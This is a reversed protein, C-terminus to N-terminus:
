KSCFETIKKCTYNIEEDRLEPFMPLSVIEDAYKESVPFSGKKLGLDSYAPHLHVPVPYHIITQIGNQKLFNMLESRRKHRIVYLHYVSECGEAEEAKEIGKLLENYLKANKRRMSNWKDLHKLKVDLVAAQVSDLRSNYGKCLHVYKEKQGYNRLMRLKEALLDDNTIIAGADGYAGLNKGPYFSFAAAEGFIGAKKGKYRAGHAQCADEFIILSHKKAIESIEDMQAPQGFLHVPLIAKTNKTIANEIKSVDINHTRPNCDVLIPKAGTFSVGLATAIFTNAPIIVEDGKGIGKALMMLFLADTGSAVGICHKANCYSAFNKEFAATEIGLVFSANEIAAQMAPFVEQKIENFQRKLDLFPVEM